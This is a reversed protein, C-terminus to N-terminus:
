QHHGQSRLSSPQAHNALYQLTYLIRLVGDVGGLEDILTRINAVLERGFVVKLEDFGGAINKFVNATSNITRAADGQADSTSKFLISLRAYVKEQETLERGTGKIGLTLAEQKIRAENIVIGYKQVARSQGVLASQLDAIVDKKAKNNFSSLDVGLKTVQASLKAAEDTAFGLPVFTDQIESFFTTLEVTTSGTEKRIKLLDKVAADASGKFVARFKAAAEEYAAAEKAFSAGFGASAVVGGIISIKALSTLRRRANDVFRGIARIGANTFKVASRGLAAFAGAGVKRLSALRKSATGLQKSFLDRVRMEVTLAATAETM